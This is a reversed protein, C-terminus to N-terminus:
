KPPQNGLGRRMQVFADLDEQTYTPPVPPQASPWAQHPATPNPQPWGPQAYPQQYFAPPYGHMPFGSPPGYPGRPLFPGSPFPPPYMPTTARDSQPLPGAEANPQWHTHPPFAQEPEAMRDQAVVPHQVAVRDQAASLVATSRKRKRTEEGSRTPLAKVHRDQPAPSPSASRLRPAEVRTRKRPNGSPSRLGAPVFHPSPMAAVGDLSEEDDSMGSGSDTDGRRKAPKKPPPRKSQPKVSKGSRKM